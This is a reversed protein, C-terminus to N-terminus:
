SSAEGEINFFELGILNIIEAPIGITSLCLLADIPLIVSTRSEAAGVLFDQKTAIIYFTRPYSLYTEVAKQMEKFTFHEPSSPNFKMYNDWIYAKKLCKISNEIDIYNTPLKTNSIKSEILEDQKKLSINNHHLSISNCQSTSKYLIEGGKDQINNHSLYLAQLKTNIKFIEAFSIAGEDSINNHSLNLTTLTHNYKLSNALISAGEDSINNHSLNLTTLVNDNKLLDSLILLQENNLNKNNLNQELYSAGLNSILSFFPAFIKSVEKM